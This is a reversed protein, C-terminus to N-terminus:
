KNIRLMFDIAGYKTNDVPADKNQIMQRVYKMQERQGKNTLVLPKPKQTRMLEAQREQHLRERQRQNQVEYVQAVRVFLDDAKRMFQYPSPSEGDAVGHTARWEKLAKPMNQNHEAYLKSLMELPPRPEINEISFITRYFVKFVHLQNRSSSSWTSFMGLQRLLFSLACEPACFFGHCNYRKTAEDYSKPLPFPFGDFPQLDYKCLERTSHQPWQEDYVFIAKDLAEDNIFQVKRKM